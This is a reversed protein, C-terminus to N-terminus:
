ASRLRPVLAALAAATRDVDEHTNYIHPCLRMGGTSAGAVGYEEYLARSLQGNSVGEFTFIVVGGSLEPDRPTVAQAGPIGAVQDKLRAALELVRDEIVQPGIMEHLDLAAAMGAITADNRQGLTQFKAAGDPAVGGGGWGVGVINPWIDAVRDARVYLIGGEKPGMFWKHASSAYSDCGLEHLDLQFAGFSQAGDVHVHIGRDRGLRCLDAAPPRIGSVNSVDSFSLVRTQPTLAAEFATFIESPDAPEAPVSVRRVTFGFRQARVDWAVDNTQHNQEWIVVEDGPGLPLGGIITNNAETTNRVIAIEEADAGLYAGLRARLEDHLDGYESRNQSSVDGEVDRMAAEVADVTMSPAPCLNAANMPTIGDSLPFAARVLTWFAEDARVGDLRPIPPSAVSAALESVASPAIAVGLSGGALRRLFRRRTLAAGPTRDSDDSM